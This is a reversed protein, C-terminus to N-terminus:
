SQISSNRGIFTVCEQIVANDKLIRSHGLGSTKYLTASPYLELLALPHQISVERDADDHVLMLDIKRPLKKIFHLATFEDFPRGMTKQIYAKFFEKTGSSGGIAKLYTNIIEDGITPSAINILKQVPLNNMVAYLAVGGGFSHSLIAEPKGEKEILKKLVAEFEMINTRKGESQGHAPGDFGVVRYGAANLPKLFRRFQTARGAWGHMVFVVKDAKGWAYCQIRKGSVELSFKEAYSEAKREKETPAYHLPTFFLNVFFKRALAPALWELKPFGWRIFKLLLPTKDKKM